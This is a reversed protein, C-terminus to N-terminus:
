WHDLLQLPEVIPYVLACTGPYFLTFYMVGHKQLGLGSRPLASVQFVALRLEKGFCEGFGCVSGMKKPRPQTM